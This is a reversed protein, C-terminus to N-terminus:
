RWGNGPGPRATRQRPGTVLSRSSRSRSASAIKTSSILAAPGRGRPRAPAEGHEQRHARDADHAVVAGVLVRDRQARDLRLVAHGRVPRPQRVLEQRPDDLRMTLSTRPTLRTTYSTVLLGGDVISHSHARLGSKTWRWRWVSYLRSSPAQRRSSSTSCARAGRCSPAHGDGVVAVHEARHLEVVRAAVLADLRDDAALDVHCRAAPVVSWAALPM